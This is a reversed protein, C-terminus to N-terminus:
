RSKAIYDGRKVVHVDVGGFLGFCRVVIEPASDPLEAPDIVGHALKVDYGGFLGFGNVRVRFGEPVYVDVGGFLGFANITTVHQTFRAGRLDLDVGGFVGISTHTPAITEGRVTAGGFIGVSVATGNGGPRVQELAAEVPRVLTNDAITAIETDSFLHTGPDDILDAVQAVLEDRTSAGECARSREDFEGVDIQGQGMAVTLIQVARSRDQQTCRISM